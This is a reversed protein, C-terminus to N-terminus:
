AKNENENQSVNTKLPNRKNPRFHTTPTPNQHFTLLHMELTAPINISYRGPPTLYHLSDTSFHINILISTFRYITVYVSTILAYLYRRHPVLYHLYLHMYKRIWIMRFAKWKKLLFWIFRGNSNVAIRQDNMQVWVFQSCALKWGGLLSRKMLFFRTFYLLKKIRREKLMLSAKSKSIFTYAGALVMWESACM